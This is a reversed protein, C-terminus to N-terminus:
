CYSITPSGNYIIIIKFFHNKICHYNYKLLALSCLMGFVIITSSRVTQWVNLIKCKVNESVNYKIIHQYTENSNSAKESREIVREM